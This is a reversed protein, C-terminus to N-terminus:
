QTIFSRVHGAIPPLVLYETAMNKVYQAKAELVVNYYLIRKM